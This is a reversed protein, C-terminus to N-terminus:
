VSGKKWGNKTEKKLLVVFCLIYHREDFAAITFQM